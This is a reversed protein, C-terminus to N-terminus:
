GMIMKVGSWIVLVAFIKSVINSTMKRLLLSGVAGGVLAPLIMQLSDGSLYAINKASYLTLSVCSICVMAVQINAYLDRRDSLVDTDKLVRSLSLGLFIGGAAGLFGNLLGGLASCLAIAAYKGRTLSKNKIYM